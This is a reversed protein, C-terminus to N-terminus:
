KDVMSHHLCPGEGSAPVMNNSSLTVLMTLWIFVKKKM